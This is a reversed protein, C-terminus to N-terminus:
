KRDAENINVLIIFIKIVGALFEERSESKMTSKNQRHDDVEQGIVILEKM